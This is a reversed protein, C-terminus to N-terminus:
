LDGLLLACWLAETARLELDGMPWNGADGRAAATVDRKGALRGQGEKHMILRVAQTM